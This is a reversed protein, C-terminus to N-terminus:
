AGAGRDHFVHPAKGTGTRRPPERAIRLVGGDRWQWEMMREGGDGGGIADLFADLM